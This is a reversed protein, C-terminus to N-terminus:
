IVFCSEMMNQIIGIADKFWEQCVQLGTCSGSHAEARMAYIGIESDMM